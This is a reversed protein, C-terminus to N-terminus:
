ATRGCGPVVYLGHLVEGTATRSSAPRSYRLDLHFVWAQDLGWGLCDIDARAGTVSSTCRSFSMRENCTLKSLLITSWDRMTISRLSKSSPIRNRAKAQLSPRSALRRPYSWASTARTLSRFVPVCDFECRTDLFWAGSVGHGDTADTLARERM